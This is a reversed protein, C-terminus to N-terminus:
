VYARERIWKTAVFKEGRVVPAGGHLSLSDPSPDPYAFYLAGGKLPQVKLGLDPFVTEGGEDPQNLYLLVTAIRNGGSKTHQATGPLAPDFYDYHPKYEAGEAYHLVQFGEGNVVPHGFAEEIRKEIRDVIPLQARQFYMGRSTRAAHAELSGDDCVVTSRKLSPAALRVLADCEAHSLFEEILLIRPEESVTYVTKHSTATTM